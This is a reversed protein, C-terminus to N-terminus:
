SEAPFLQLTVDEFIPLYYSFEEGTKKYYWGKYIKTSYLPLNEKEIQEGDKVIMKTTNNDPWQFILQHETGDTYIYTDSNDIGWKKCLYEIRKSLFFKIYRMNNYPSEYHGTHTDGWVTNDMNISANIREYYDDIRYDLFNNIVAQNDKFVQILYSRYNEDEYLLNDWELPYRGVYINEKDDGFRSINDLVTGNYNLFEGGKGGMAKDYDWCPGAYIKNLTPKKYFFYSSKFADCNFFLEEILFRRAFSYEDIVEKRNKIDNTLVANTHDFIEAIYEIQERSANNPSKITFPYQAIKFGCKKNKYYKESNKEILYGGSVPSPPNDYSYGKFQNNEFTIFQDRMALSNAKELDGIDLNNHNIDPEKCLLYNGLYRGDAYLDVWDSESSYQLGIAESMDFAMKNLLKSEDFYNALLAWKRSSKMGCLSAENNLLIQYPNKDENWTTNGRGKILVTDEFQSTGNPSVINVAIDMYKDHEIDYIDGKISKLLMTNLNRSQLFCIKWPIISGDDREVLIDQSEGIIPKTLLPGGPLYITKCYYSQDLDSLTVFAPLFFYTCDGKDLGALRLDYNELYLYNEEGEESTSELYGVSAVTKNEIYKIHFLIALFVASYLALLITKKRSFSM